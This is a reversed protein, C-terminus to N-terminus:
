RFRGLMWRVLDEELSPAPLLEHGAGPYVLVTVDRNGGRDLADRIRAASRGPPVNEDLEGYLLLVPATVQRWLPAPDFDLDLWRLHGALDSRTPVKRPLNIRGAWPHRHAEDLVTQLDAPDTGRRAYEDLRALARDAAKQDPDSFGERLLRARDAFRNVEAYTVGPGSLAVLFAFEERAAVVPLLWGGQSFGFLGIRTGDVEPRSRLAAAAAALDGALVQLSVSGGDTEPGTDRKDYIFAAIGARAFLDAYYRFDDRDPTSSGHALVVVPPKPGPPLLLSGALSDGGNRFGVELERYPPRPTDGRHTLRLPVSTAGNSAIGTISDRTVSGSFRLPGAHAPIVFRLTSGQLTVEHLKKGLLREGPVSIRGELGEGANRFDLQVLAPGSPAAVVGEWRGRVPAEAPARSCGLVPAALLALVPLFWPM